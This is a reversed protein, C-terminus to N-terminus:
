RDGAASVVQGLTDKSSADNELNDVTVDARWGGEVDNKALDEKRKKERVRM